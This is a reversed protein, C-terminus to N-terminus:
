REIPEYPANGPAGNAFLWVPKRHNFNVSPLAILASSLTGFGIDTEIRMADRSDTGPGHETSALLSQWGTWDGLDVDPEPAAEFRPKFFDIRGSATDNLDFATLMSLGDPIETVKIRGNDDAGLSRLWFADRNDAIVLNFSRYSRGDLGALAEAADVADAHDLAELVVEGRSRLTPDPGLSDKRNLICATVGEDNLGMWTGGALRDIGAVVNERDRWHRAPPDWPRGAMEDRNAAVLLPWDHDPRRLIILTCVPHRYCNRTTAAMSMIQRSSM